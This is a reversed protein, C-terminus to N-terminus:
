LIDDAADSTYLLCAKFEHPPLVLHRQNAPYLEFYPVDCEVGNVVVFARRGNQMMDLTTVVISHANEVTATDGSALRIIKHTLFETSQLALLQNLIGNMSQLSSDSSATSSAIADLKNSVTLLTAETAAAPSASSQQPAIPQYIFPQM